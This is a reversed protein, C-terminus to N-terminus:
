PEILIGNEILPKSTGWLELLLHPSHSFCQESDSPVQVTKFLGTTEMAAFELIGSQLCLSCSCSPFCAACLTLRVSVGILISMEILRLRCFFDTWDIAPCNYDMWRTNHARAPRLTIEVMQQVNFNSLFLLTSRCRPLIVVWGDCARAIRVYGRLGLLPGTRGTLHWCLPTLSYNSVQQFTFRHYRSQRGHKQQRQCDIFGNVSKWGDLGRHRKWFSDAM